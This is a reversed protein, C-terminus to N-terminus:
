CKNEIIEMYLARHNNRKLRGYIDLQNKRTECYFSGFTFDDNSRHKIVTFRQKESM